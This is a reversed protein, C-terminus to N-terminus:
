YRVKLLYLGEAPATPPATSRSRAALIKKLDSVKLRDHGVKVLAGVLNRVMRYLFGDGEFTFELVSGPKRTIRISRLRRITSEREYGPNSTFSAFDHKGVFLRAAQRIAKLNLPRPVHWALGIEMPHLFPENVIRYLYTKGKASFRAHFKAAAKQVSLVRVGPPLHFNLARLLTEPPHTGPVQCSAVQGLAHVGRDTRGSGAVHFSKGFIKKLATELALQVTPHPDQRQWGYFDSGRYAVTLKFTQLKM